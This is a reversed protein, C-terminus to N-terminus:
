LKLKSEMSELEILNNENKKLDALKSLKKRKQEETEVPMADILGQIRKKVETLKKASGSADSQGNSRANKTGGAQNVNSTSAGNGSNSNSNGNSTTNSNGSAGDADETEETETTNLVQPTLLIVQGARISNENAIKNWKMLSDKKIGYHKAIKSLAEGPLIEHENPLRFEVAIRKTKMEGELKYRILLLTDSSRNLQVKSSKSSVQLVSDILTSDENNLKYIFFMTSESTGEPYNLLELKEFDYVASFEQTSAEGGGGGGGGPDPLADSPLLNYVICGIVLVATSLLAIIKNKNGNFPSQYYIDSPPTAQKIIPPFLDRLSIHVDNGTIQFEKSQKTTFDVVRIVDGQKVQTKSMTIAQGNITANHKNPDFESLTLFLPKAFSQVNQIGPIRELAVNQGSIFFVKKFGFITPGSFHMQIQDFDNCHFVGIGNGASPIFNAEPKLQLQALHAKVDEANVMNVMANGQKVEYTQLMLNLCEIADGVIAYGNPIVISLAIYAKRQVHDKTNPNFVSLVTHNDIKEISYFKDVTSNCIQRMDDTLLQYVSADVNAALWNNKFGNRIGWVVFGIKNDM